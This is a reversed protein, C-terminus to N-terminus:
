NKLAAVVRKGQPIKDDRVHYRTNCTHYVIKM